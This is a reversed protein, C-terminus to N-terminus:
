YLIRFHCGLKPVAQQAGTWPACKRQAGKATTSGKDATGREATGGDVTFVDATEGNATGRARTSGKFLAGM